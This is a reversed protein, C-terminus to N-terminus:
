DNEDSELDKEFPRLLTNDSEWIKREFDSTHCYRETKTTPKNLSSELNPTFEEHTMHEKKDNQPMKYSMAESLKKMAMAHTDKPNIKSFVTKIKSM